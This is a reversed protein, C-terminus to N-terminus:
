ESALIKRTIDSIIEDCAAAVDDSTAHGWYSAGEWGSRYRSAVKVMKDSVNGYFNDVSLIWAAVGDGNSFEPKPLGAIRKGVCDLLATRDMAGM